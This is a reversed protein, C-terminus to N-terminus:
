SNYSKYGQLGFVSTKSPITNGQLRFLGQEFNQRFLLVQLM